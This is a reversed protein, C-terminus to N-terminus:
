IKNTNYVLLKVIKSADTDIDLTDFRKVLNMYKEEDSFLENIKRFIDSPNRIFFGVKNKVVFRMNGLEQNHIYSSIILPKRSALTEMISSTGAKSVVLDSLKILTDMFDVFGYIHLDLEPFTKKILELDKQLRKNRGCVVAVTFDTKHLICHNIIKRTGPLGEGGGALLVVKKNEDFGYKRRLEKKEEPTVTKKFKKNVLLPVKIIRSPICHMKQIAYNRIDDSGVFERYSYKYFWANHCTFPDTNFVTLNINIGKKKLKYVINSLSPSLGFHFSVIDTIGNKIITKELYRRTTVAIGTKVLALMTQPQTIDYVLPYAGHLYNCSFSYFTEFWFKSFYNKDAFGNLLRVDIGPCEEEMAQKLVSAQAIHGNGSNLYFFMFKRDKYSKEEIM